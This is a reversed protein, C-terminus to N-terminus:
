VHQTCLTLPRCISWHELDKDWYQNHIPQRGKEGVSVHPLHKPPIKCKWVKLIGWIFKAKVKYTCIIYCIYTHIRVIHIYVHLLYICTHVYIHKHIYVNYMNMYMWIYIYMWLHISYLCQTYQQFWDQGAIWAECLNLIFDSFFFSLHLESKRKIIESCFQKAGIFRTDKCLCVRQKVAVDDCGNQLAFSICCVSHRM